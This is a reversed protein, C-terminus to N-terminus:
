RRLWLCVSSLRKGSGPLRARAVVIGLDREELGGGNWREREREMQVLRIAGLYDGTM